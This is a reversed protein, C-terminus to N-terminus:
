ESTERIVRCSRHADTLRVIRTGRDVQRVFTSSGTGSHFGAGQAPQAHALRGSIRQPFGRPTLVVCLRRSWCQETSRSWSIRQNLCRLFPRRCACAPGFATAPRAGSCDDTAVSTTSPYATGSKEDRVEVRRIHTRILSRVVTAVSVGERDALSVLCVYDCNTIRVHLHHQPPMAAQIALHIGWGQYRVQRRVLLSSRCSPIEIPDAVPLLQGTSPPSHGCQPYSM